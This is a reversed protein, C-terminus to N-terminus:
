RQVNQAPLQSRRQASTRRRTAHRLVQGPLEGARHDLQHGVAVAGRGVAVAVDGLDGPLHPGGAAHDDGVLDGGAEAAGAAQNALSWSPMTGSTIASPLPM